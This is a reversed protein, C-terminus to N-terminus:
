SRTASPRGCSPPPVSPTLHDLPSMEDMLESTLRADGIAGRVSARMFEAFALARADGTVQGLDMTGDLSGLDAYRRFDVLPYCLISANPSMKEAPADDDDADVAGTGKGTLAVVEDYMKEVTTGICVQYQGGAEVAQIVGPVESVAETNNHAIEQDKLFFRVRTICHTVSKINDNGGVPEVIKAASEKYDVAMEREKGKPDRPGSGSQKIVPHRPPCPSFPCFVREHVANRECHAASTPAMTMHGESADDHGPNPRRVVTPKPATQPLLGYRECSERLEELRATKSGDRSHSIARDM